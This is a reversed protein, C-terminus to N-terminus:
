SSTEHASHSHVRYLSWAALTMGDWLRGSAISEDIEQASMRFIEFEETAEPQATGASLGTALFVHCLENSLGNMPNFFGLKKWESARYGSEEELELQAQQLADVGEPLGGGPFELSERQNLYRFQNTLVFCGDVDQAVIFVSGFTSAYFYDTETGNPLRYRDRKYQWYPNTDIIESSIGDLRHVM